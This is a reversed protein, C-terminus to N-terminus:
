WARAREARRDRTFVPTCGGEHEAVERNEVWGVARQTASGFRLVLREAPRAQVDTRYRVNM